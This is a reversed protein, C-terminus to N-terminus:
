RILYRNLSGSYKLLTEKLIGAAMLVRHVETIELWTGLIYDENLFLENVMFQFDGFKMRVEDPSFLSMDKKTCHRLCKLIRPLEKLTICLNDFSVSTIVSRCLPCTIVRRDFLVFVCRRCFQNHNCPKLQCDSVLDLCISCESPGLMDCPEPYKSM